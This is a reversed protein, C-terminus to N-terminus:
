HPTLEPLTRHRMTLGGELGEGPPAACPADLADLVHKLAAVGMTACAESVSLPFAVAPESDWDRRHARVEMLCARLLGM